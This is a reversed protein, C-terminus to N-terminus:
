HRFVTLDIIEKTENDAVTIIGDYGNRILAKSLVRGKKNYERYLHMKWSNDDYWGSGTNFNLVLPKNFTILGKEWGPFPVKEPFPDLIMFRGHPQIKEQYPDDTGSMGKASKTNRTYFFTVKKGTKFQIGNTIVTTLPLTSEFLRNYTKM